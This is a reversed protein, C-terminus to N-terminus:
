VGKTVVYYQGNILSWAGHNNIAEHVPVMELIGIDKVELSNVFHLYCDNEDLHHFMIAEQDYKKALEFIIEEQVSTPNTVMYSDEEIGAYSGKIKQTNNFLGNKILESKWSYGVGNMAFFIRKSM